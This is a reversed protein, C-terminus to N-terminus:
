ADVHTAELPDVPRGHVAHTAHAAHVNLVDRETSATYHTRKTLDFKKERLFFKFLFIIVSCIVILFFVNEQKSLYMRDNFIIKKINLWLFFILYFIGGLFIGKGM